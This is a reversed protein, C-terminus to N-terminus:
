SEAKRLLNKQNDSCGTFTQALFESCTIFMAGPFSNILNELRSLTNGLNFYHRFRYSFPLDSVRPQDPDIEWPHLYFVYAGNKKLMQRVGANFLKSPYLRFYGGGAWPLIKGAVKLNSVPIEHFDDEIEVATDCIFYKSFDVQGYRQNFGFSNYSSDWRYGAARVDNLVRQSISFGPARYGRIPVGVLDELLHRSTLLDEQLKGPDDERCLIHRHGHSAIEHGRSYIERVLQPCREAIWGLVFFTARIPKELNEFLDLLRNTNAEVRLQLKGWSECPCQRRLNEVQFWDEVDVTLIFKGSVSV